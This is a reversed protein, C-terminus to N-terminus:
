TVALIRDSHSRCNQRHGLAGGAPNSGACVAGSHMATCAGPRRFRGKPRPTPVRIPRPLEPRERQRRAAARAIHAPTRARDPPRQRQLGPAARLAIPVQELTDPDIRGPVLHGARDQRAATISDLQIVDAPPTTIPVTVLIVPCAGTTGAPANTMRGTAATENPAHNSIILVHQDRGCIRTRIRHIEGRRVRRPRPRDRRRGALWRTRAACRHRRAPRPPNRRAAGPRRARVHQRRARRCDQRRRPNRASPLVTAKRTGTRDAMQEHPVALPTVRASTV